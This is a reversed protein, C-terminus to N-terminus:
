DQESIEKLKELARPWIEKFMEEEEDAVDMDLAFLTKGDEESLTYNEHSPTWKKIEESTTDEVGNKVFGLHKISLFEFPRNEAIESTMGELEGKDNKALFQIKAGKEWSGEFFSGPMFVATWQRYPQDNVINEWVKQRPANILKELHLKKM